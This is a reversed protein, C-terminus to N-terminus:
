QDTGIGVHSSVVGSHEDQLESSPLVHAEGLALAPKRGRAAQLTLRREFAGSGAGAAVGIEAGRPPQIRKSSPVQGKLYDGEPNLKVPMLVASLADGIRMAHADGKDM